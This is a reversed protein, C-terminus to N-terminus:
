IRNEITTIIRYYRVWLLGLKRNRKSTYVLLTTLSGIAPAFFLAGFSFLLLANAIIATKM